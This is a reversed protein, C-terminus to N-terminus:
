FTLFTFKPLLIITVAASNEMKEAVEPSIREPASLGEVMDATM